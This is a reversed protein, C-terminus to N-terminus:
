VPPQDPDYADTARRGTSTVPTNGDLARALHKVLTSVLEECKRYSANGERKLQEIQKDAEARALEIQRGAEDILERRAIHQEQRLEDLLSRLDTGTDDLQASLQERDLKEFLAQRVFESFSVGAASARAAARKYDDPLMRIRVPQM